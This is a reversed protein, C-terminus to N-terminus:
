SIDMMKEEQIDREKIARRIFDAEAKLEDMSMAKFNYSRCRYGFADKHGDNIYAELQYREFDEVTHVGVEAWHDPDTAIYAKREANIAEIHKVLANM